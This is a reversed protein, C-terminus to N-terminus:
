SPVAPSISHSNKSYISRLKPAVKDGSDQQQLIESKLDKNFAKGRKIPELPQKLVKSGVKNKPSISEKGPGSGPEDKEEYRLSRM